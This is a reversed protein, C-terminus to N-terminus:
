ISTLAAPENETWIGDSDWGNINRRLSGSLIVSWINWSCISLSLAMKNPLYFLESWSFPRVSSFSYFEPHLVEQHPIVTTVLWRLHAARYWKIAGQFLVLVQGAKSGMEGVSRVANLDWVKKDRYIRAQTQGGSNRWTLTHVVANPELLM